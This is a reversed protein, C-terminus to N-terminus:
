SFILLFIPPTLQGRRKLIRRPDQALQEASLPPLKEIKEMCRQVRLSPKAGSYQGVLRGGDATLGMFDLAERIWAQQDRHPLDYLKAFILLNEYGTLSGDV